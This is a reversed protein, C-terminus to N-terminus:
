CELVRFSAGTLADMVDVLACFDSTGGLVDLDYM